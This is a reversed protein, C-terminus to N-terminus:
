LILTPPISLSEFEHNDQKKESRSEQFRKMEIKADEDDDEDDDIQRERSGAITQNRIRKKLNKKMSEIHNNEVETM